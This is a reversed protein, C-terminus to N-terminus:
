KYFVNGNMRMSTNTDSDNIEVGVINVMYGSTEVSKLFDMVQSESGNLYIEFSVSSLSEAAGVNEAGFSFGLSTVQEKKGLEEMSQRFRFVDDRAPLVKRLTELMPAAKAEESKLVSLDQVDLRRQNDALRIASISDANKAIAMRFFYLCGGAVIIAVAYIVAEIIIKKRFGGM